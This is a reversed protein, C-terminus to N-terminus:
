QTTRKPTIFKLLRKLSSDNQKILKEKKINWQNSNRNDINERRVERSTLNAKENNELKFIEIWELLRAQFIGNASSDPLNCDM